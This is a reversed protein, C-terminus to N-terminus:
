SFWFNPGTDGSPSAWPPTRRRTAHRPSPRFTPMIPFLCVVHICKLLENSSAQYIPFVVGSLGCVVQSYLVADNKQVQQPSSPFLRPMADYNHMGLHPASSQFLLFCITVYADMDQFIRDPPFTHGRSHGLLPPSKVARNKYFGVAKWCKGTQMREESDESCM